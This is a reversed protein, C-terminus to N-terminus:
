ESFISQYSNPIPLNGKKPADGTLDIIERYMANVTPQASRLVAHSIDGRPKSGVDSERSRKM